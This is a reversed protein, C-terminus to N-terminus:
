SPPPTRRRTTRGLLPRTGLLSFTSPTVLAGSRREPRRADGALNMSRSEFAGLGQFQDQRRSWERFDFASPHLDNGRMSTRTIAVLQHPNPFPLDRTGGHVISFMTTTFGIGMALAIVASLVLGPSRRLGRLITRLDFLYREM